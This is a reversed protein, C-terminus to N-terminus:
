NQSSGGAKQLRRGSGGIAREIQSPARNIRMLQGTIRQLIAPV